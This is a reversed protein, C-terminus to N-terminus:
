NPDGPDNQLAVLLKQAQQAKAKLGEKHISLSQVSKQAETKLKEIAKAGQEATMAGLRTVQQIAAILEEVPPRKIGLLVEEAFQKLQSLAEISLELREQYPKQVLWIVEPDEAPDVGQGGEGLAPSAGELSASQGVVAQAEKKSQAIEENFVNPLNLIANLIERKDKSLGGIMSFGMVLNTLLDFDLIGGSLWNLSYLDHGQSRMLEQLQTSSIYFGEEEGKSQVLSEDGLYAFLIPHLDLLQYVRVETDSFARQMPRGSGSAGAEVPRRKLYALKFLAEPSHNEMEWGSLAWEAKKPQYFRGVAIPYRRKPLPAQFNFIHEALYRHLDHVEGQIFKEKLSQRNHAPEKSASQARLPSGWVEQPDESAQQPYAPELQEALKIPNPPSPQKKPRGRPRKTQAIAIPEPEAIPEAIPEPKLDIAVQSEPMTTTPAAKRPRGRKRLASAALEPKAANQKAANEVWELTAKDTLLQMPEKPTAESVRRRPQLKPKPKMLGM